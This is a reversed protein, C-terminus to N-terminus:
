ENVFGAPDHINQYNKENKIKVVVVAVFFFFITSYIESQYSSIFCCFHSHLKAELLSIYVHFTLWWWRERGTHTGHPSIWVSKKKKKKEGRVSLFRKRKKPSHDNNYLNFSTIPAQSKVVPWVTLFRDTFLGLWGSSHSVRQTVVVLTLIISITSFSLLLFFFINRDPSYLWFFKKKKWKQIFGSLSFSLLYAM